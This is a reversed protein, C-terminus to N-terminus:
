MKIDQKFITLLQNKEFSLSETPPINKYSINKPRLVRRLNPIYVVNLYKNKLTQCTNEELYEELPTPGNM